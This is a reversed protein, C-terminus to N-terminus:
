RPSPVRWVTGQDRTGYSRCRPARGASSGARSTAWHIGPSRGMAFLGKDWIVQAVIEFGIAKLGM